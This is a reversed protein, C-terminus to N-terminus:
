RVLDEGLLGDVYATPDFPVFDDPGEGLGVFCIPLSMQTAVALGVGGRASTDLKALIVGTL